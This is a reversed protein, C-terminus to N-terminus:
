YPPTGLVAFPMVALRAPADRPLRCAGQSGLLLRLAVAGVVVVVGAAAWPRWPRVEAHGLAALWAAATAPRDDPQQALPAAPAPAPRASLRPRAARVARGVAGRDANFPVSGGGLAEFAVAALSHLDARGDVRESA